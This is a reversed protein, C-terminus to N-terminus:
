VAEEPFEPEPDKFGEVMACAQELELITLDSIEKIDRKCQKVAYGLFGEITKAKRNLLELLRAQLEEHKKKEDEKIEVDKFEVPEIENMAEVATDLRKSTDVLPWSKYARKIVTKCIMTKEFTVWPTTKSKDKLYARYSVSAARVEHIEDLNMTTVLFEGDHTKAVCYAGIIAGRDKSFPQFNHTPKEGMGNVIFEDKEHVTEALAWKISGIDCALQIFGKYSIDLSIKKDRPVLYAFKHVPNLSLGIAAINLVASKLSEPNGSAIDLLYDNSKLIQAAFSVEREWNVANHIHALKRFDGEVAQVIDTMNKVKQLNSM